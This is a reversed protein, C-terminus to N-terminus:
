HIVNKKYVQYIGYYYFLTVLGLQETAHICSGFNLGKIFCVVFRPSEFPSTNKQAAINKRDFVLWGVLFSSLAVKGNTFLFGHM